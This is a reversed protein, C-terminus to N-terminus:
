NWSWEYIFFTFVSSDYATANLDKSWGYVCQKHFVYINPCYDVLYAVLEKYIPARVAPDTSALGKAFMEDVYPDNMRAYNNAGIGSSGYHCENFCIDTRYTITQIMIGYDGSEVDEDPTETNIIEVTVGIDALNQQYVQAMKSPYGAFTKFQVGFDALNLGDPYGAEALLEKAKEPNYSFDDCDGFDTFACNSDYSMFRAPTAYGDYAIDIIQERNCAYTFAQRVLKNDFPAVTNNMAILATHMPITEKTSFDASDIFEAANITPLNMFNVDGTKLAVVATSDDSIYKLTAKKISAVGLRYDEFAKLVVQVAPDYSEVMYPGTGCAVKSLEGNNEEVFKKNMICMSQCYTLFLPNPADLTFVLTYEDPTEINAVSKYYTKRAPYQSAYDFSYVVDEATLKEGNQFVADKVLHFTYEMGDESAEWSEALCPKAVGDNGVTVLTEYVQNFIYNDSINTTQYPDLTNFIDNVRVVVGKEGDAEPTKTKTGGCAVLSLVTLISLVLALTKKMTKALKM